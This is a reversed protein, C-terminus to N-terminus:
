NLIKKVRFYDGERDTANALLKQSFEGSKNTVMDDRLVNKNSYKRNVESFDLSTIKGVFGLIAEIESTMKSKEEETLEIRSLISLNEIDKITIM